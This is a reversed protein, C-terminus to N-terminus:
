ARSTRVHTEREGDDGQDDGQPQGPAVEAGVHRGDEVPPHMEQTPGLAGDVAQESGAGLLLLVPLAVGGRHDDKRGDGHADGVQEDPDLAREREVRLVQAGYGLREAEVGGRGEHGVGVPLVIAALRRHRVEGLDTRQGQLLHQARDDTDRDGDGHNPAEGPAVRGGDAVEPDVHGAAEEVDHERDGEEGPDDEDALAGHLRQGAGHGDM